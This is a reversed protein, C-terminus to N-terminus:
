YILLFLFSFSVKQGRPSDEPCHLPFLPLPFLLSSALSSTSVLVLEFMHPVHWLNSGGGPNQGSQCKKALDLEISM